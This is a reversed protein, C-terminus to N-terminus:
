METIEYSKVYVCDKLVREATKLANDYTKYIKIGEHSEDDTCSPYNVSNKLGSQYHVKGLYYGYPNNSLFVSDDFFKIKYGM